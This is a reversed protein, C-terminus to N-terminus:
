GKGLVLDVVWCGRAHEGPQRCHELVAADTCGADELADALIPLRDFARDTYIGEALSMVTTTQWDPIIRERSVRKSQLSIPGVICRLLHCQVTEEAHLAALRVPSSLNDKGVQAASIACAAGHAPPATFGFPNFAQFAAKVSGAAVWNLYDDSHCYLASADFAGQIADDWEHRPIRADVFQETL